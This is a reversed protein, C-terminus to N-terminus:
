KQAVQHGCQVLSTGEVTSCSCRSGDRRPRVTMATLMWSLRDVTALQILAFFTVMGIRRSASPSTVLRYLTIAVGVANRMSRCPRTSPRTTPGRSQAEGAPLANIAPKSVVGIPRQNPQGGQPPADSTRLARRASPTLVLAASIPQLSRVPRHGLTKPARHAIPWEDTVGREDGEDHSGYQDGDVLAVREDGLPPIRREDPLHRQRVENGEGDRGPPRQDVAADSLAGAAPFLVGRM